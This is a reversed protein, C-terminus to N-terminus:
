KSQPAAQEAQYKLGFVLAIVAFAAITAAFVLSAATLSTLTSLVGIGIVPLANGLFCCIFYASVVEARRDDPAIQNVVQLSGRYGLGAALGCTATSAIMVGLSGVFQATVLLALSPLMLGLSWLMATRSSLSRTLAIVLAVAAALELFIAGAVAHSTVHLENALVSPALAAFFAVLAMAGFGTVAPAVFRRRISSPVDARPRISLQAFAALPRNVTERLALLAAVVVLVALYAIFPTRLPLTVYEALLGAILAGLGLGTFNAVTAVVTARSRDQEAILEALWATGTGAGIGIALGSLVRAVYLSAIGHAFLFVLASTIAIGIAIVATRRRGVEDSMGGFVLLATLNGVVYVAYILTLTIQSFGFQQKYIVYLPTAITSGAFLAGIMCGVAVITATKGFESRAASPISTNGARAM